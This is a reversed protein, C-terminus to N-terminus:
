LYKKKGQKELAEVVARVEQSHERPCILIADGADVVILDKVGVLAILREDALVLSNKSNVAVANGRSAIGTADRPLLRWVEDWSGVDSWGFTGRVVAVQPAHEMVGYDISIGKLASFVHSTAEHERNTGIAAAIEQLGSYWQPLHESLQRMIADARWVFIGSNWLFEGSQVFSQAIQLTPKEAFTKVKFVDTAPAKSPKDIQIYGYGTEPRTPKIGITVLVDPSKAVLAAATQLVTRFDEVNEIRHDAPLVIMVADPDRHLLHVAALGIAPATNRPVPELIFRDESLEPMVGRILKMQERNTVIWRQAEPMMPEIREITLQIMPGEGLLDVVQKPRHKRSLPWFRAGVGGAIIVSHLM